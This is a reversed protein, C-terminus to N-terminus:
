VSNTRDSVYIKLLTDWFFCSKGRFIGHGLAFSLKLSTPNCFINTKKIKNMGRDPLQLFGKRPNNALKNCGM